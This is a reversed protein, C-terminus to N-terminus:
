FLISSQRRNLGAIHHIYKKSPASSNISKLLKERPSLKWRCEWQKKLKNSHSQWLASISLPLGKRLFNPLSKANSSEGQAAKKAEEDVKKNSAFNVHGLVWHIQLDVIGKLRGKWVGGEAIM